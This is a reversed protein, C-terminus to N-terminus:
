ASGVKDDGFARPQALSLFVISANQLFQDTIDNAGTDSLEDKPSSNASSSMAQNHMLWM